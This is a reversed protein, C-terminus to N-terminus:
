FYDRMFSTFDVFFNKTPLSIKKEPNKKISFCQDMLMPVKCWNLKIVYKKQPKITLADPFCKFEM